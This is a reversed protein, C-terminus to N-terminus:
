PFDTRGFIVTYPLKKKGKKKSSTTFGPPAPTVPAVPDCTLIISPIDQENSISGQCKKVLGDRKFDCQDLPLEGTRPCVMEKMAFSLLKLRQDQPKKFVNEIGHVQNYFHIAVSLTKEYSLSSQSLVQAPLITAVSAMLLVKRLHEM